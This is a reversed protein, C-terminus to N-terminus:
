GAASRVRRPSPAAAPGAAAFAGVKAWHLRRVRRFWPTFLEPQRDIDRAVEDLPTWSWEGVERPDPLPEGEFHGGFVHTIENELMRESVRVRYSMRFLPTLACGIGMEDKLRRLAANLVQEGPRPHSCCTNTWLGASHYKGAARRQLLLRNRRDFVLVSLARHRHGLYHARLKQMTGTAVDNRDVLVVDDFTTDSADWPVGPPFGPDRPYTVSM